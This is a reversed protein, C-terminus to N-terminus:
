QPTPDVQRGGVEGDTYPQVHSNKLVSVILEKKRGHLMETWAQKKTFAHAVAGNNAATIAATMTCLVAAIVAASISCRYTKAVDREM